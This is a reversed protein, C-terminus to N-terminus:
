QFRSLSIFLDPFCRACIDGGTQFDTSVLQVGDECLGEISGQPQAFTGGAEFM